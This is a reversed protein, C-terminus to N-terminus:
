NKSIKAPEQTKSVEAKKTTKAEPEPSSPIVETGSSEDEEKKEKSNFYKSITKIPRENGTSSDQATRKLISPRSSLMNGRIVFKDM